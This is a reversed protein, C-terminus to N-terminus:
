LRAQGQDFRDRCLLGPDLLTYFPTGEKLRLVIEALKKEDEVGLLRLIYIFTMEAIYQMQKKVPPFELHTPVFQSNRLSASTQNLQKLASFTRSM